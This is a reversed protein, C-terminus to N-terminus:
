VGHRKIVANIETRAEESWLYTPLLKYLDVDCSSGHEIHCELLLARVGQILQLRSIKSYEGYLIPQKSQGVYTNGVLEKMAMQISTQTKQRLLKENIM